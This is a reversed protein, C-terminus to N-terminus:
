RFLQEEPNEAARRFISRRGTGRQPETGGGNGGAGAQRNKAAAPTMQGGQAAFEEALATKRGYYNQYIDFALKAKHEMLERGYPTYLEAGAPIDRM